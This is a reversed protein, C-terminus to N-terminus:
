SSFGSRGSFHALLLACLVVRLVYGGTPEPVAALGVQAASAGTWQSLLVMMDASDIDGDRDSDGDRWTKDAAAYGDGTWQALILLLDGSDVDKDADLDSSIGLLTVEGTSYLKSIDWATGPQGEVAFQGQVDAGNWDFVRLTRGSQSALQINDTFELALTGGLQVPIGPAFLIQSGWM